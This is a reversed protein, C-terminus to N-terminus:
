LKQLFFLRGFNNLQPKHLQQQTSTTTIKPSHQFFNENTSSKLNNAEDYPSYRQLQHNMNKPNRTLDAGSAFSSNNNLKIQMLQKKLQEEDWNLFSSDPTLSGDLKLSEM